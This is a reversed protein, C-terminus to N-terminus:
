ASGGEVPELYSEWLDVNVTGPGEASAGWLEAATFRVTYLPEPSPGRGHANADPLTDVGYFRDIVGRKGRAYRPLRTHGQPHVTRTVVQDGPKYRAQATDPPPPPDSTVRATLVRKALPPDDRRLAAAPDRQLLEIRAEIEEPTLVGREILNLVVTYLHREYYSSSLYEAPPMREIGHRFSDINMAGSRTAATVLGPVRKEWDAHFQEEHHRPDIPGFGHMGGMDHIGNV